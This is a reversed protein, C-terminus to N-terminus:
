THIYTHIYMCVYTARANKNCWRFRCINLFTALIKRIYTGGLCKWRITNFGNSFMFFFGQQFWNRGLTFSVRTV